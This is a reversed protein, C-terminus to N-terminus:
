KSPAMSLAYYYLNSYMPNYYYGQIYNYGVFFSTAQVTWIYACEDHMAMSIDHYLEARKTDNLETAAQTVLSDITENKYGITSAYLGSSLYFPHVYDDPDAYDPAWGLFMVPMKHSSQYGILTSLELPTVTVNIKDSLSELGAKLLLCATERATNGASYYLEINFGTDLWNSAGNTANRLYAAAAELDYSYTPVSADYGFMGKPIVGNPQIAMGQMTTNIYQEYNFASAFAMRVNRDQFFTSPVNTKKPDAGAVNLNENLGFFDLTLTPYGSIISVNAINEVSAMQTRPIAAADLDGNKLAMIMASMESYQTIIITKLTPAGRWYNDNAVLKTYSDKKIEGVMYPGTGMANSSMFDYGDKTLGGHDEVYKESVISATNFALASLFASYPQTLNFQVKNDHAWIHQDLVDQGISPVIKGDSGFSSAPYTTENAYDPILMQGYMPIPSAPDNLLFARDFSYEVDSAKLVTGDSFTVGDRITFIYTLGDASIGGNAVTPVETALLPILESSSSGNYWVLTEYVNQLIEGGFTEYDVAPDLSDYNGTITGYRFVTSGSGKTSGGSLVLAAGIAAIALVAVLVIVILKKSIGRKKAAPAGASGDM